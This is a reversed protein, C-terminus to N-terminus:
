RQAQRRERRLAEVECQLGVILKLAADNMEYNERLHQIRRLQRLAETDFLQSDPRDSTVPGILGSERYRLITKHDIGTLEAMVEITYRVDDPESCIPLDGPDSAPNSNM